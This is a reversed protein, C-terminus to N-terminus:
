KKSLVIEGKWTEPTRVGPKLEGQVAYFTHGNYVLTAGARAGNPSIHITTWSNTHTDFVRYEPNFKYFEIPQTMYNKLFEINRDRKEEASITSDNDIDYQATLAELFVDHNVGGMCLIYRNDIPMAAAGGLSFPKKTQADIQECVKEWKGESVSYRLVDTAMAPKETASGGFFGGMLYIYTKHGIELATMVPQVRPNGPFDHLKTWTTDTKSNMCYFANSPIANENGGGVFVNNAISCGAFNDMTAPLTPIPALQLTGNESLTVKYGESLSGDSTNGGIWLAGDTVPVSVGYASPRPLQGIIEWKERAASLLFIEDYFAKSGGEFGLKGPFNAGGAVLLNGDIYAAYTASVGKALNGSLGSVPLLTLNIKMSPTNHNGCMIFTGIIGISLMRKVFSHLKRNM